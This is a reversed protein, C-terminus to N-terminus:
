PMGTAVNISEGALPMYTLLGSAVYLPTTANFEADLTANIFVKFLEQM